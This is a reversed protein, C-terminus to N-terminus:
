DGGLWESSINQLLTFPVCFFTILLDSVALSGIFVDTATQAGSRKRAVTYVVLSNGVLALAFILAYLVVVAGQVGAPLRLVYVLPEIHYSEIFERRSLNYFRLMERLVEPTIKTSTEM